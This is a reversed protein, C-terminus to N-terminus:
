PRSGDAPERGALEEARKRLRAWIRDLEHAVARLRERQADDRDADPVALLAREEGALGEIRAFLGLDPPVPAVDDPGRPQESGPFAAM